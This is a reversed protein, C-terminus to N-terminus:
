KEISKHNGVAFFFVFFFFLCLTYLATYIYLGTKINKPLPSSCDPGQHQNQPICSPPPLVAGQGAGEERHCVARDSSFRLSFFFAGLMSASASEVSYKRHASGGRGRLEEKRGGERGGESVEQGLSTIDSKGGQQPTESRRRSNAADGTSVTTIDSEGPLVM